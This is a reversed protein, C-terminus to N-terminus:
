RRRNKQKQADAEPYDYVKYDTGLRKYLLDLEDPGIEDAGHTRKDDEKSYIGPYGKIDCEVICPHLKIFLFQYAKDHNPKLSHISSNLEIYKDIDAPKKFGNIRMFANWRRKEMWALANTQSSYEPYTWITTVNDVFWDEADSILQYYQSDNETKFLSPELIGSSYVKYRFQLVRAEDARTNYYKRIRIDEFISDKENAQQKYKERVGQSHRKFERRLINSVSYIEDMCGFAHMYIDFEGAEADSIHNQRADANLAQCLDSNYIVYSIITKGHRDENLHYYGIAQRLRDAVLFNEEDSGAAVIFYDTDRLPFGDDGLGTKLYSELDCNAINKQDYRFHFYRPQPISTKITGDEGIKANLIESGEKSTAMIDPNIGDIRSVFEQETENASIVNINLEVGPMQGFWYTNLFMETGIAGSGVITVNLQKNNQDKGYLGEFLPLEYFLRQSMKRVGNVPAVDPIIKQENKEFESSLRNHLYIVEDEINSTRKDTGFVRIETEKLEKQKEPNLLQALTQLNETEESDSLFIYTRKKKIKWLSIHLLDDKLCIAGLAKASLLLESSEENEDDSYVDTFILLVHRFSLDSVISKALALSQENLATFYFRTKYWEFQSVIYRLQPFIGALIEFVFAGGAIPAVVNLVALYLVHIWECDWLVAKAMKLGNEMYATYEEDMSFTQLGHLLSNFVQRWVGMQPIVNLEDPNEFCWNGIAFRLLWVSGLLTLSFWMLHRGTNRTVVFVNKKKLVKPKAFWYIAAGVAVFFVLISLIFPIIYWGSNM